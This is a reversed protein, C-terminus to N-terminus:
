GATGELTSLWWLLRGPIGKVVEHQLQMDGLTRLQLKYDAQAHLAIPQCIASMPEHQMKSSPWWACWSTRLRHGLYRSRKQWDARSDMMVFQDMIIMPPPSSADASTASVSKLLQVQALPSCRQDAFEMRFAFEALRAPYLTSHVRCFSHLFM